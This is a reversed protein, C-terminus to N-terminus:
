APSQTGASVPVWDGIRQLSHSGSEHATRILTPLSPYIHATRHHLLPYSHPHHPNPHLTSQRHWGWSKM